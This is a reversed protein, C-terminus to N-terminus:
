KNNLLALVDETVNVAEEAYVINGDSTGFIMKYGRERGYDAITNNIEVIVPSLLEQQRSSARQQIARSYRSLDDERKKAYNAMDRKKSLSWKESNQVFQFNLSDLESKLMQINSEWKASEEEYKKNAEVAGTYKQLLLGSDVYAISPSYTLLLTSVVAGYIALVILIGASILIFGNRNETRSLPKIPSLKM